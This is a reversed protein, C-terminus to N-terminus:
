GWFAWDLLAAIIVLTFLIHLDSVSMEDGETSSRIPRSTDWGSHYLGKGHAGQIKSHHKFLANNSVHSLNSRQYM